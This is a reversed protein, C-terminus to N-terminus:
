SLPLVRCALVAIKLAGDREEIYPSIPFAM